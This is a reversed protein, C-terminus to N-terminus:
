EIVIYTKISVSFIKSSRNKLVDNLNQRLCVSLIFMVMHDVEGLDRSGFGFMKGSKKVLVPDTVHSIMGCGKNMSPM